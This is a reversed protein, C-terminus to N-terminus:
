SCCVRSYWACRDKLVIDPTVYTASGFDALKLQSDLSQNKFLLNEPKLDRHAVAAVTQQALSATLQEPLSPMQIQQYLEGHM